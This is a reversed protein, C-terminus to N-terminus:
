FDDETLPVSPVFGGPVAAMAANKAEAFDCGDLAGKAVPNKEADRDFVQWRYANPNTPHPSVAITFRRDASECHWRDDTNHWWGDAHQTHPEAM